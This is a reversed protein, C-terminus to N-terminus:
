ILPFEGLRFQQIDAMYEKSFYEYDAIRRRHLKLHKFTQTRNDSETTKLLM